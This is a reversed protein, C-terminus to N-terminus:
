SIVDTNGPKSALLLTKYQKTANQRCKQRSVIQRTKFRLKFCQLSSSKPTCVTPEAALPFKSCPIFKEEWSTLSFLRQLQQFESTLTLDAALQKGKQFCHCNHPQFKLIKIMKGFLLVPRPHHIRVLKDLRRNQFQRRDWFYSQHSVTSYFHHIKLHHKPFETSGHLIKPVKQM